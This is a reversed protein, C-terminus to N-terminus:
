NSWNKVFVDSGEITYERAWGALHLLHFISEKIVEGDEFMYWRYNDKINYSMVM